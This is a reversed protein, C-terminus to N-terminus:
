LVIGSHLINETSLLIEHAVSKYNTDSDMNLPGVVSISYLGVGPVGVGDDGDESTVSISDELLADITVYQTEM